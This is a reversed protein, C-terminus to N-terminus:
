IMMSSWLFPKWDLCLVCTRVGYWCLMDAMPKEPKEAYTELGYCQDEQSICLSCSQYMNNQGFQKNNDDYLLSKYSHKNINLSEKSNTYHSPFIVYIPAVVTLVGAGLLIDLRGVVM